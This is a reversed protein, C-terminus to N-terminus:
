GRKETIKIYSMPYSIAYPSFDQIICVDYKNTKIYFRNIFCGTMTEQYTAYRSEIEDDKINLELLLYVKRHPKVKEDLEDQYEKELQKRFKKEFLDEFYKETLVRVYTENLYRSRKTQSIKATIVIRNELPPAEAFVKIIM